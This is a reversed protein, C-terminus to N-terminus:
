VNRSLYNSYFRAPDIQLVPTAEDRHEGNGNIPFDKRENSPDKDQLVDNLTKGPSVVAEMSSLLCAKKSDVENNLDEEDVQFAFFRLLIERAFNDESIDFLFKQVKRKLTQDGEQMTDTSIIKFWCKDPLLSCVDGPKIPVSSGLKLSRWRACGASKM